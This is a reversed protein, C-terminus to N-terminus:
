SYRRRAAHASQVFLHFACCRRRAWSELEDQQETSLMLTAKPRGTRM